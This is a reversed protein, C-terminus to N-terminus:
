PSIETVSPLSPQWRLGKKCFKRGIPPQPAPGGKRKPQPPPRQEEKREAGGAAELRRRRAIFEGWRDRSVYFDKASCLLEDDDHMEGGEEAEGPQSGAAAETAKGERVDRRGDGSGPQRPQVRQRQRLKQVTTHPVLYFKEGPFLKETPGLLSEQPRSFVEPRAVCLGPHKEMVERAAVVNPYVEVMGGALVVRVVSPFFSEDEAAGAAGASGQKGKPSGKNSQRPCSCYYYCLCSSEGCSCLLQFCRVVHRTVAM